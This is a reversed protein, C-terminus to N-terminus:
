MLLKRFMPMNGTHGTGFLNPIARKTHNPPNWIHKADVACCDVLGPAQVMKASPVARPFTDLLHIRGSPAFGVFVVASTQIVRVPDFKMADSGLAYGQALM